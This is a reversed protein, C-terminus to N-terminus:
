KRDGSLLTYHAGFHGIGEADPACVAAANVGLRRRIGGCGTEGDDFVGGDDGLRSLLVSDIEWGVAEACSLIVPIRMHQVSECADHEM